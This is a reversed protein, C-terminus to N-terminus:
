FISPKWLFNRIIKPVLIKMSCWKNFQRYFRKLYKFLQIDFNWFAFNSAYKSHIHHNGCLVCVWVMIDPYSQSFTDTEEHWNYIYVMVQNPQTPAVWTAHKPCSYGPPAGRELDVVLKFESNEEGLSNEM